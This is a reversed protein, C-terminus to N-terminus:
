ERSKEDEGAATETEQGAAEPEEAWDDAAESDDYSGFDPPEMPVEEPEAPGARAECLIDEFDASQSIVIKELRTLELIALFTAVINLLSDSQGDFLSSFTFRPRTELLLLLHAMRDSVTITEGHIQGITMKEALRRLVQNFVNWLEIRDTPLLPKDLPERATEYYRPLLDQAQAILDRLSGAAEKFKKYEILQQVLEWRPDVEEEEEGGDPAQEDRPLLMRSKIQMLTAAMVFFEGAIELSLREMGRIIDLYQDTVTQIPIDYIEIENKRILFLLLDLPGEFVQLHISHDLSRVLKDDSSVVGLHTNSIESPPPLNRGQWPATKATPQRDTRIM